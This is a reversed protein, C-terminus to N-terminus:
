CLAIEEILRRWVRQDTAEADSKNIEGRAVATVFERAMRVSAKRQGLTQDRAQMRSPVRDQSIIFKIVRLVEDHELLEDHEKAIKLNYVQTLPVQALRASWYPVTGDGQGLRGSIPNADVEPNFHAGNVAQWRLEVLTQKLGSRIHFIRELFEDPLQHILTRRLQRAEDLYSTEVWGPYRDGMTRHNYPDAEQDPNTADRLPYLGLGLRAGDSVYTARDLYMLIYPGPVSGVVESISRTGYLENLPSQGKYYREMHNATGYFPTAVTIVQHCWDSITGGRNALRQLFLTVVLGGLSHCVLTTNPLPDVGRLELIRDRLRKLFFKLYGSAEVISRRWDYGFVIYNYAHDRFYQETGNYPTALFRLPGDPVVIHNDLDHGDRRIKLQLAEGDFIIGLDIWIPDYNEFPISDDNRYPRVSRDLQSGMGGPLLVITPQDNIYRTIFDEIRWSLADRISFRRATEYSM